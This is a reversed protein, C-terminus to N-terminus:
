CGQSVSHGIRQGYAIVQCIIIDEILLRRNKFKSSSLSKPGALFNPSSGLPKLAGAKLVEGNMKAIQLTLIFAVCLGWCSYCEMRNSNHVGPM